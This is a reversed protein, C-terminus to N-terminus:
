EGQTASRKLEQLRKVMTADDPDIAVTARDYLSLAIDPRGIKQHVFGAEMLAPGLYSGKPFFVVLRMFSLGADKTLKTDNKELALYLQAIGKQYLRTQLGTAEVRMAKDAAETAEAFKGGRILKTIEDDAPMDKPMVVAAGTPSTAGDTGGAPTTDGGPQTGNDPNSVADGFKVAAVKIRLDKVAKAADGQLQPAAADLARIIAQKLSENSVAKIAEPPFAQLYFDGPKSRALALYANVAEMPQQAAAAAVMQRYTAWDRLWDQRAKSRVGALLNVAKPLEKGNELLAEAEGLDPMATLRLGQVDKLKRQAESGASSVYNINGDSISQITVDEIWFGGLKVADALSQSAMVGFM